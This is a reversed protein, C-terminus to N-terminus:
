FTEEAAESIGLPAGIRATILMVRERRARQGSRGGDPFPLDAHLSGSSEGESARESFGTIMLTEGQGIKQTVQLARAGYAPLQITESATGFVAFEPRDRLSTFLRVLVEDPGTIRPLYSFAFGSSVTAPTLETQVVGDDVTTSRESLYAQKYLEFFQAPKGNLSPIDASLVRSATGAKDLAQITANLTSPGGAAPRILSLAGEAAVRLDFNSGLIRSVTTTLSLDFNHERSRTVTYVHVSLTVPRLVERNLHALFARVRAIQAPRGRALVSASSPAVAITTDDAVLAKLQAELEPWPDHASQTAITQGAADARGDGGESGQSSATTTYTQQGALAHIRFVTARSRVIEIAGREADHRWAYGTGACWADLLADLPGTWIGGAPSLRDPGPLSAFAPAEGEGEGERGAAPRPGTFVVALGTATEIRAALVAEGPGDGLPLTLADDRRWRPPLAARPDEALIRIGVYPRDEVLRLTAFRPTPRAARIESLDSEVADADRLTGDLRPLDCATVLLGCVLAFLARPRLLSKTRELAFRPGTIAKGIPTTVGPNQGIRCSQVSQPAARGPYQTARPYM